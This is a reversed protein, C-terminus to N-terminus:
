LQQALIAFSNFQNCHPGYPYRMVFGTAKNYLLADFQLNGTFYHRDISGIALNIGGVILISAGLDISRGGKSYRPLDALTSLTQTSLNFSYHKNTLDQYNQKNWALSGGLIHLINDVVFVAPDSFYSSDVTPYLDYLNTWTDTSLNYRWICPPQIPAVNGKYNSVSIVENDSIRVSRSRGAYPNQTLFSWTNTSIDYCLVRGQGSAQYSFETIYNMVIIRSGIQFAEGCFCPEALLDYPRALSTYIPPTEDDANTFDYCGFVQASYPQVPQDIVYLKRTQSNYCCTTMGAFSVGPIAKFYLRFTDHKILTSNGSLLSHNSSTDDIIFHSGSSLSRRQPQLSIIPM